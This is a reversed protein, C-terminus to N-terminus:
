FPSRKTTKKAQIRAENRYLPKLDHSIRINTNIEHKKMRLNKLIFYVRNEINNLLNYFKVNRDIELFEKDCKIIKNIAEKITHDPNKCWERIKLFNFGKLASKAFVVEMNVIGVGSHLKEPNIGSLYSIVLNFKYEPATEIIMDEISKDYRDQYNLFCKKLLEIREKLAPLFLKQNLWRSPMKKMEKAIWPLKLYDELKAVKEEFSCVYNYLREMKKKSLPKKSDWHDLVCSKFAPQLNDNGGWDIFGNGNTISRTNDIGKLVIEEINRQVIVNNGHQDFTSLIYSDIIFKEFEDSGKQQLKGIYDSFLVGQQNLQIVGKLPDKQNKLQLKSASSPISFGKLGMLLAVDYVFKEMHHPSQKFYVLPEQTQHLDDYLPYVPHLSMVPKLNEQGLAYLLGKRRNSFFEAQIKIEKATVSFLPKKELSLDKKEGNKSRTPTELAESIKKLSFSSIKENNSIITDSKEPYISKKEESPSPKNQSSFYTPSVDILPIM